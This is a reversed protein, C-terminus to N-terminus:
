SPSCLDRLLATDGPDMAAGGPYPGSKSGYKHYIEISLFGQWLPPGVRYILIGSDTNLFYSDSSIPEQGWAQEAMAAAQM